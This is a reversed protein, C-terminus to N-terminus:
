GELRVGVILMVMTVAYCVWAAISAGGALGPVDRYEITKLQLFFATILFLLLIPTM